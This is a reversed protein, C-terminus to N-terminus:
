NEKKAQRTKAIALIGIVVCLASAVMTMVIGFDTSVYSGTNQLIMSLAFLPVSGAVALGRGGRADLFILCAGVLLMAIAAISIVWCFNADTSPTYEMLMSFLNYSSKVETYGTGGLASYVSGIGNALTRTTENVSYWPLLTSVAALVAMVAAALSLKRAGATASGAAAPRVSRAPRQTKPPAVAAEREHM